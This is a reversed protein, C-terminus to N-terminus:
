CAITTGKCDGWSQDRDDEQVAAVSQRAEGLDHWLGRNRGRSGIREILASPFRAMGEYADRGRDQSGSSDVTGVRSMILGPRGGRERSLFELGASFSGTVGEGFM